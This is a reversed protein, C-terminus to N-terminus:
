TQVAQLNLSDQKPNGLDLEPWVFVTGNGLSVEVDTEFSGETQNFYGHTFLTYDEPHAGFAHSKDNVCDSFTRIAMDTEPLFFPPLHSHAKQDYISFIKLIM